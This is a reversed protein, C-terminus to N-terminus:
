AQDAPPILKGPNLINSPDLAAKAARLAALGAEGKEREIWPLHDEGVGHHHSITGGHALITEMAASKIARWQGIEDDLARPFLATIYLSAGDRTVAKPLAHALLELRANTEKMFAQKSSIPRRVGERAELQRFMEIGQAGDKHKAVADAFDRALQNKRSM